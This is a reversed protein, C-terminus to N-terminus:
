DGAMKRKSGRQRRPAPKPGTSTDPDGSSDAASAARGSTAGKGRQRRVKGGSASLRVVGEELELEPEDYEEPEPEPEPDPATRKASSSRKEPAAGGSRAAREAQRAEMEESKRQMWGMFGGLQPQEGTVVVNSKAPEAKKYGLRRHEPLEPLWPFWDGIAGWGTIFWQQVVSYVSQVFWYLVVGAPFSWGFIVVMLPMFNMMMQMMAQQPDTTKGQNRPRMMRMQIFQAGGALIALPALPIFLLSIKDPDALSSIWLFGDAFHGQGAETSRRIAFFLGFFIPMQALLPLCGAAPNINYESYLKMTEQSLRQRDKGYKKQLEKIKPQLEQMAATSKVSKITLPLLATKILITFLIIAVAGSGTLDALWNLGSQILDVYGNWLSM